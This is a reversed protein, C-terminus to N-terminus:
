RKGNLRAAKEYARQSKERDGQDQYAKGLECYCRSLHPTNQASLGVCRNAVKIALGYKKAKLYYTSAEAAFYQGVASQTYPIQREFTEAAAVHEATAAFKQARIVTDKEKPNLHPRQWDTPYPPVANQWSNWGAEDAEEDQAMDM